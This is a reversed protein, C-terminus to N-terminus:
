GKTAALTCDACEFLGIAVRGASIHFCKDGHIGAGCGHCFMDHADADGGCSGDLCALAGRCRAPGLRLNRKSMRRADAVDRSGTPKEPAAAGRRPTEMESSPGAEGAQACANRAAEQSEQAAQEDKAFRAEGRQICAASFHTLHGGATGARAGVGVALSCGYCRADASQCITESKGLAAAHLRQRTLRDAGLVPSDWAKPDALLTARNYIEAAAREASVVGSLDLANVLATELCRPPAVYEAPLYARAVRDQSARAASECKALNARIRRTAGEGGSSLDREVMPDIVYLSGNNVLHEIKAGEPIEYTAVMGAGCASERPSSGSVRRVPVCAPGRAASPEWPAYRDHTRWIESLEDNRGLKLLFSGPLLPRGNSSGQGLGRRDYSWEERPGLALDIPFCYGGALRPFATILMRRNSRIPAWGSGRAEELSEAGAGIEGVVTHHRLMGWWRATPHHPVLMAGCLERRRGEDSCLRDAVERMASGVSAFTPHAWLAVGSGSQATQSTHNDHCSGARPFGSPHGAERGLLEDFGGWAREMPQFWGRRLRQRPAVAGDGRSLEDPRYLLKGPTHASRLTIDYMECRELLRRLLEQMDSAKSTMKEATFHSVINDTEILM